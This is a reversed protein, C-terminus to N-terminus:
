QVILKQSGVGHRGIIHITYVGPRLQGVNLQHIANQTLRVQDSGVLKGNVDFTRIQYDGSENNNALNVFQSAPNPYLGFTLKEFNPNTSLVEACNELIEGPLAVADILLASQDSVNHHRFAIYVTEGAFESM